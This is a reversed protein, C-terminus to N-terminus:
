NLKKPIASTDGMATKNMIKHVIMEFLPDYNEPINEFKAVWSLSNINPIM